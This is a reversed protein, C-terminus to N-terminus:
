QQAPAAPLLLMLAATPARGGININIGELLVTSVDPAGVVLIWQEASRQNQSHRQVVRGIDASARRLRETPHQQDLLRLLIAEKSWNDVSCSRLAFGGFSVDTLPKTGDMDQIVGRVNSNNHTTAISTGM